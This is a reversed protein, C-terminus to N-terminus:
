SCLSLDGAANPRGSRCEGMAQPNGSLTATVRLEELTPRVWGRKEFGTVKM